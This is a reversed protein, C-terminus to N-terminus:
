VADNQTVDYGYLWDLRNLFAQPAVAGLTKLGLHAVRRQIGSLHYNRANANAAAIARTVRPKRLAEYRALGAQVDTSVDCCRAMVFADEIALNAGQALFPLTPHAADGLIAVSKTHWVDAVPHRFLGWILPAEVKSLVDQLGSACDAFAAQLHAPDDAHHWGEAAWTKREQVAVINLLGEMLPYMVVHRRPAMWVQAGVMPKRLPVVARWAVQGTFTPEAAGNTLVRSISHIGDAGVILDAKIPGESTSAGGDPGFSVARVGLYIKAGADQAARALLGILSARHFFRYPPMQDQLNFLTVKRGTLADVPMVHAAKLSAAEMAPGCGLAILTRAGNPSIQIGAGVEKIEAAQEFVEVVAGARAFALAATLGGIGAGIVAVRKGRMQRGTFEFETM